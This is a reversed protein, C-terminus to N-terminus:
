CKHARYIKHETSNLMFFTKYGQTSPMFYLTKSSSVLSEEIWHRISLWNISFIMDGNECWGM